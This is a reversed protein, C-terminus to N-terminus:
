RSESHLRGGRASSHRTLAADLERRSSIELKNFINHLHWEVTRASLFLEAGIEPNTRSQRALEAIREEQATLGTTQDDRRKRVTEGTALLERRAREAFGNAGMATFAEFAPRLQTRADARRKRRRLWEGYSLRTRALYAVVRTRSLLEIAEQYLDDAKDDDALLARAHAAVGRAWDTGSAAAVASLQECAAAALETQESRVAAEVLEYRAWQSIAFEEVSAARHAAAAALGYDALGNQVVASIYDAYTLMAGEGRKSADAVISGVLEAVASADGRWAAVLSAVYPLAATGGVPDIRQAEMMLDEAQTLDGALTQIVALRHLAFPLWSLTGSSRALQAQGSALEFWADDDWLEMAVVSYPHCLADLGWPQARYQGLAAKLVPAAADYGDLVRMALGRLLLRPHPLPEPGFPASKAGRAVESLDGGVALRGAYIGAVLGELFTEFALDANLPQLRQAAHLLLSPADGGRDLTFAIRAKMHEVQANGLEDLPGIEAAALLKQAVVFDAAAYKAQAAALARSARRGPDPTLTVAREWFAAAAAVGGRQRARDASGILEAAVDEDPGSAAYARHWARRDPEAGPDTAAALAAHAARRDETAADRYVASRLLPHRFRVGAEVRLLGADVALDLSDISLGLTQGARRLLAPDGVPDASALLVLRQTEGPLGGLRALYQHQIRRPVSAIDPMAFGGAFDAAGLSTGLELLALANGRSEEIIRARVSEDLRAAVVSALLARSSQENLGALDLQPLGALHDPPTVPTRAAFVLAVPEALLRRGVFGLIQASAHDLWQVDDVVCLMPLNESAEALLSLTALAVLFPDPSEGSALGLAVSLALRQPEVLSELRDLIPACLDHVGAFALEMESEVGVCRAVTFGFGTARDTLYRLLATKGIGPEGLMVVVGSQGGRVRDLLGDLTACESQRGLLPKL